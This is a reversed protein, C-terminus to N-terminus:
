IYKYIDSVTYLAELSVMYYSLNNDGCTQLLNRLKMKNYLIVGANTDAILCVPLVPSNKPNENAFFKIVHELRIKKGERDLFEKQTEGKPEIYCNM